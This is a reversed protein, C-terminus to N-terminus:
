PMQSQIKHDMRVDIYDYQCNNRSINKSYDVPQQQQETTNSKVGIQVRYNPELTIKENSSMYEKAKKKSLKQYLRDHLYFYGNVKVESFNVFDMTEGINM